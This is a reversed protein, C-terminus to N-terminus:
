FERDDLQLTDSDDDVIPAKTTTARSATLREKPVPPVKGALRMLVYDRRAAGVREAFFFLRPLERWARQRVEASSKELKGDRWEGWDNKTAHTLEALDKDATEMPRVIREFFLKDSERDGRCFTPKETKLFDYLREGYWLRSIKSARDCEAEYLDTIAGSTLVTSALREFNSPRGKAWELRCAAAPVGPLEGVTVFWTDSVKPALSPWFGYFDCWPFWLSVTWGPEKKNWEFSFRARVRPYASGYSGHAVTRHRWTTHEEWLQLRGKGWRERLFWLGHGDIPAFNTDIASLDIRSEYTLYSGKGDPVYLKLATKGGPWRDKSTGKPSAITFRFGHSDMSFSLGEALPKRRGDELTLATKAASRGGLPDFKTRNPELPAAVSTPLDRSPVGLLQELRKASCAFDLRLTDLNESDFDLFRFFWLVRRGEVALRADQERRAVAQEALSKCYLAVAADREAEELARKWTDPFREEDELWVGDAEEHVALFGAKRRIFEASDEPNWAIRKYLKVGITRWSARINDTPLEDVACAEATEAHALWDARMDGSLVVPKPGGGRQSSTIFAAFLLSTLFSTM